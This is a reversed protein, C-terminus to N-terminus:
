IEQLLQSLFLVLVPHSMGDGLMVDEGGDYESHLSLNQIDQTVHQNAGSDLLWKSNASQEAFNVQPKSTSRNIM